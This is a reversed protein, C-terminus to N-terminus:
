KRFTRKKPMIDGPKAKRQSVTHSIVIILCCVLGSPFLFIAFSFAFVFCFCFCFCFCGLGARQMFRRCLKPTHKKSDFGNGYTLAQKREIAKVGATQGHIFSYSARCINIIPLSYGHAVAVGMTKYLGGRKKLFDLFIKIIIIIM